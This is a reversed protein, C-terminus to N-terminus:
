PPLIEILMCYGRLNLSWSVWEQTPIFGNRGVGAAALHELSGTMELSLSRGMRMKGRAKESIRVRPPADSATPSMPPTPQVSENGIGPGVSQRSITEPLTEFSETGRPLDLSSDNERRLLRAKEEHPEELDADDARSKGKDVNGDAQRAREDKAAQARRIERLGRVLTFTGLDEFQKHARLIGHVLNANDSLNRLIINNFSELRGERDVVTIYLRYISFECSSSSALIVGM